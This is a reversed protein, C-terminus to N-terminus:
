NQIPIISNKRLYLFYMLQEAQGVRQVFIEIVELYFINQIRNHLQYFKTTKGLRLHKLIIKFENETTKLRM